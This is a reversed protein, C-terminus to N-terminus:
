RLYNQVFCLLLDTNIPISNNAYAEVENVVNSM